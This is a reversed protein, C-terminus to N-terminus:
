KNFEENARRAFEADAELGLVVKAGLAQAARLASGSGATPDFARTHEDVFASFFHKLVEIPKEHPHISPTGRPYSIANSRPSIVKADGRYGFFATEYVRRFGRRVDPLVGANDSKLWVLPYPDVVFEYNLFDYTLEFFKPSFWFIVHCDEACFKNINHSFVDILQEYVSIDDDYVGVQTAGQNFKDSNIGYPFDCHIFNFPPGDYSKVWTKFDTHLIAEQKACPAMDRGLIKLEAAKAARQNSTEALHVASSLSKKAIEPQKELTKAALLYRSVVSPDWGISNATHEQTWNPDHRKRAEHLRRIVEVQDTWPLDKRKINEELEVLTLGTEDAEDIYQFPISAWGLSQCARLRREGAVLVLDRTLVIPHILGLRNISDALDEIGNLDKRQREGITIGDISTSHFQGSLM